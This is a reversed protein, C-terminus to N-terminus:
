AGITYWYVNSNNNAGTVNIAATTASRVYSGVAAVNGPTMQVNFVNITYAPGIANIPIASNGGPIIQYGWKLLVGSPLYAWGNSNTAPSANTSLISASIPYQKRTSASNVYSIFLQNISTTADVVNYLGVESNIFPLMVSTQDVMTVFTHKGQDGLNFGVHNVDILTSIAEFNDLIQGQSVSIQDTPQPINNNYAM